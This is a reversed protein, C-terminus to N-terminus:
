TKGACGFQTLIRDALRITAENSYSFFLPFYSLGRIAAAGADALESRGYGVNVCWLGAGFDMLGRCQSPVSTNAGADHWKIDILLGRRNKCGDPSVRDRAARVRFVKRVFRGPRFDRICLMAIARGIGKACWSTPTSPPCRLRVYSRRIASARRHPGSSAGPSSRASSIRSAPM